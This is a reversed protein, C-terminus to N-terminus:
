KKIIKDVVLAIGIRKFEEFVANITAVMIQSVDYCSELKERSVRVANETLKTEKLYFVTENPILDLINKLYVM